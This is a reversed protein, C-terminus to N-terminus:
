KRMDHYKQTVVYTAYDFLLLTRNISDLAQFMDAATNYLAQLEAYLWIHRRMMILAYIAETLPIGKAYLYEAYGMKDLFKLVSKYPDGSFYMEKLERYLSVAQSLCWEKPLSRFSPTRPNIGVAKYWQDAIEKARSQAFELLKDAFVRQAM